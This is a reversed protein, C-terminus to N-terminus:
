RETADPARSPPGTNGQSSEPHEDLKSFSESGGYRGYESYKVLESTEMTRIYAEYHRPFNKGWVAPDPEDEPIEAVKFFTLRAEQRREFISVLLGLVFITLVVTSALIIALRAKSM